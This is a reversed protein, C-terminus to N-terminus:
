LGLPELNSQIQKEKGLGRIVLVAVVAVLTDDTQGVQSVREDQGASMQTEAVRAGVGQTVLGVVTGDAPQTLAAKKKKKILYCGKLRKASATQRLTLFLCLSIVQAQTAGALRWLGAASGLQSSFARRERARTTWGRGPESWPGRRASPLVRARRHKILDSTSVNALIHLLLMLLVVDFLAIEATNSYITWCVTTISWSVNIFTTCGFYLNLMKKSKTWKNLM